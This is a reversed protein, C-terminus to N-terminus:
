IAKLTQGVLGRQFEVISVLMNPVKTGLVLIEPFTVPEKTKIVTGYFTCHLFSFIQKFLLKFVM